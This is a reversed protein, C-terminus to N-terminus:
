SLKPLKLRDDAVASNGNTFNTRYSQKAGKTSHFRPYRFKREKKPKKCDRFFDQYARDLDKLSNQLAFKDAEKLWPTEDSKKSETLEASTAKYSLSAGDEKYASQRRALFRSYVFRASGITTNIQTAQEAM